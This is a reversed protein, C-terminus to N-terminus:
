TSSHGPAGTFPLAGPRHTSSESANARLIRSVHPSFSIVKAARWSSSGTAIAMSHLPLRAIARSQAVLRPQKHWGSREPMEERSMATSRYLWGFIDTESLSINSDLKSLTLLCYRFRIFNKCFALRYIVISSCFEAFLVLPSLRPYPLFPTDLPVTQLPHLSLPPYPSQVWLPM